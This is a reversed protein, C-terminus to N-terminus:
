DAAELAFTGLDLVKENSNIDFTTEYDEYGRSKILIKNYSLENGDSLKAVFFVYSGFLDCWAREDEKNYVEVLTTPGGGEPEIIEGVIAYEAGLFLHSRRYLYGKINTPLKKFLNNGEKDMWKFPLKDFRPNNVDSLIIYGNQIKTSAEKWSIAKVYFVDEIVVKQNSVGELRYEHRSFGHKQPFIRSFGTIIGENNKNFGIRVGKNHKDTATITFKSGIKKMMSPYYELTFEGDKNSIYEKVVEGDPRYHKTKEDEYTFYYLLDENSGFVEKKVLVGSKYHYKTSISSLSRKPNYNKYVEKTLNGEEDYYYNVDADKVLQTSVGDEKRQRVLVEKVSIKGNKYTFMSIRDNELEITSIHQQNVNSRIERIEKVIGGKKSLKPIFTNDRKHYKILDGDKDFDVKYVNGSDISFLFEGLSKDYKNSYEIDGNKTIELDKYYEASITENVNMYYGQPTVRNPNYVFVFLLFIISTVISIIYKKNFINKIM